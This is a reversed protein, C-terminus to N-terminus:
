DAAVRPSPEALGEPLATGAVHARVLEAFLAPREGNWAHGVGPVVRALGDPFAGAITTLSRRILEHEKAGAVALVRSSSTGAADPVRYDLLERGVRLFTGRATSRAAEAYGAFDESPVGLARANARLMPTRTMFPAMAYGAMRMLAPRPFPLVNVGSVLASPVLDPRGAALDVGVYGGLSLGVVHAVGGHARTAILDAVATVTDSMSVWPRGANAGHGPLDVNLVHLEGDVAEVLRRWMWGTTGVGHVLAVTVDHGRGSEAASLPAASRSV